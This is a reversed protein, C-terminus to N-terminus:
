QLLSQVEPPQSELAFNQEGPITPGTGKLLIINSTILFYFSLGVAAFIAPFTILPRLYWPAQQGTASEFFGFFYFSRFTALTKEFINANDPIAAQSIKAARRKEYEDRIQTATRPTLPKQDSFTTSTLINGKYDIVSLDLSITAEPPIILNLGSSGYAYDSRCEFIAREGVDMSRVAIDFCPLWSEDGVTYQLDNSEALIENGIMARYELQAVAGEEDFLRAKNSGGSVIKKMIGGDGSIDCTEVSARLKINQRHYKWGKEGQTCCALLSYGSEIKTLLFLLHVIM